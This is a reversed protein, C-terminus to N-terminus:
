IFNKYLYKQIIKIIIKYFKIFIISYDVLFSLIILINESGVRSEGIFYESFLYSKCTGFISKEILLFIYYLSYIPTPILFFSISVYLPYSSSFSSSSSISCTIPVYFSFLHSIMQIFSLFEVSFEISENIWSEGM